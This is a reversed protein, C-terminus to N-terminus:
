GSAAGARNLSGGTVLKGLGGGCPEAVKEVRQSTLQESNGERVALVTPISVLWALGFAVALFVALRAAPRTATALLAEHTM